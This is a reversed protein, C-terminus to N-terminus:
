PFDKLSVVTIAVMTIQADFAVLFVIIDVNFVQMFNVLFKVLECKNLDKKLFDKLSVVKIAVM